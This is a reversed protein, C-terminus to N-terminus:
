PECPECQFAMDHIRRDDQIQFEVFKPPSEGGPGRLTFSKLPNYREIRIAKGWMDEYWSGKPNLVIEGYDSEERDSEVAYYPMGIRPVIGMTTGKYGVWKWMDNTHWNLCSAPPTKGGDRVMEWRWDRMGMICDTVDKPFGLSYAM